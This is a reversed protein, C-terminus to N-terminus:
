IIIKKIIRKIIERIIERIIVNTEKIIGVRFVM